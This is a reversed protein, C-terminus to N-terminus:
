AEGAQHLTLATAIFANAPTDVGHALGLRVVAGSLWPLELRRGNDLDVAMSARVGAPLTDIRQMHRAVTDSTLPVGMQASVALTEAMVTELLARTEPNSRVVGIPRRTLATVASLGVLFVFKSWIADHIDAVPDNEIGADSLAAALIRTRQRPVGDLEGFRIRQFPSHCRILGPGDMTSSIEAVGGIVHDKGLISSLTQESDVGNQLSVVATDAGILPRCAHAAAETDWLKVSFVVFDVPGIETPTDTAEVPLTFAGSPTELRLGGTQIAYLHAGRAIFTTAYGAQALKAGFCGGVGGSGMIAFRVARDSM